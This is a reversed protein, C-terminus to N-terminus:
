EPQIPVENPFKEYALPQTMCMEEVKEVVSSLMRMRSM